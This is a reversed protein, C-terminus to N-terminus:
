SLVGNNALDTVVDVVVAFFFSLLVSGQHMEVKVEFEELLESDLRVRTNTEDYLSMVSRVLCKTNREEENGM